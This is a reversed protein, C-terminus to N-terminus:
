FHLDGQTSDFATQIQFNPENSRSIHLPTTFLGGAVLLPLWLGASGAVLLPLWSLRASISNLVPCFLEVLKARWCVSLCIILAQTFPATTSRTVEGYMMEDYMMENNVLEDNMMEDNMMEDIMM